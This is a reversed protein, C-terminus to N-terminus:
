RSFLSGLDRGVERKCFPPTRGGKVFPSLPPNEYNTLTTATMLSQESFVKGGKRPFPSFSIFPRFRRIFLRLSDKTSFCGTIQFGADFDFIM